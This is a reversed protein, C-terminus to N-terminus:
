KQSSTADPQPAGGVTLRNDVNDVGAEFRVLQAALQRDHETAVVGELVATRGQMAVRVPTKAHIAPTESLRQTVSASVRGSMGAAVEFAMRYTIRVAPTNAGAQGYQGGGLQMSSNNYGGMGGMMSTTGRTNTNGAQAAGVFSPMNQSSAGVFGVQGTTGMGTMTGLGGTGTGGSSGSGLANGLSRSGFMGSNGGSSSGMGGSSGLGGGSSGMGTSGGTSGGGSSISSSMGGGSAGTRSAQGWAVASTGLLSAITLGATLILTTTRM